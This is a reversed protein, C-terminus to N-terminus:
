YVLTYLFWFRKHIQANPWFALRQGKRSSKIQHFVGQLERFNWYCWWTEYDVQAVALSGFCIYHQFCSSHLLFLLVAFFLKNQVLWSGFWLLGSLSLEVVQRQCDSQDHLPPQEYHDAGTLHNLPNPCWHAAYFSWVDPWEQHESHFACSFIYWGKAVVIDYYSMVRM